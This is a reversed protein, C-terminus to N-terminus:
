RLSLYPNYRPDRYIDVPKSEEYFEFQVSNFVGDFGELIIHTLSQGMLVDEVVYEKGLELDNTSGYGWEPYKYIAVLM